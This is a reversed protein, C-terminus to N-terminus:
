ALLALAQRLEERVRDVARAAATSEEIIREGFQADFRRRAEDNWGGRTQEATRRLQAVSQDFEAAASGLPDASM